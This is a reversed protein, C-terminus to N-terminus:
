FHINFLLFINLLISLGTIIPWIICFILVNIQEYTINYKKGKYLLWNMCLNFYSRETQITKYKNWYYNFVKNSFVSFLLIFFLCVGDKVLSIIQVIKTMKIIRMVQKM